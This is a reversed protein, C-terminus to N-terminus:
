GANRGRKRRQRLIGRGVSHAHGAPQDIRVVRQRRAHRHVPQPALQPAGAQDLRLLVEAGLAFQRAMRFQEIPERDLKAVAATGELLQMAHDDQARGIALDGGM